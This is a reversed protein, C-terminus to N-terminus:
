LHFLQVDFAGGMLASMDANHRYEPLLGEKASLERRCKCRLKRTKGYNYPFIDGTKADPMSKANIGTILFNDMNISVLPMTSIRVPQFHPVYRKQEVRLSLTRM